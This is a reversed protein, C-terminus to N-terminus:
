VIKTTSALTALQLPVERDLPPTPSAAVTVTGITSDIVFQGTPTLNFSFTGGDEDAAHVTLVPTGPFIFSM